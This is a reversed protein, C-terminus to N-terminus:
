SNFIEGDFSSLHFVFVDFSTVSFLNGSLHGSIIGDFSFDNFLDGSFFYPGIVLSNFVLFFIDGSGYEIGYGFLNGDLSNFLNGNLSSFINGLGSSFVNGFGSLNGSDFIVFNFILDLSGL